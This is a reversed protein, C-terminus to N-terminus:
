PPSTGCQVTTSNVLIIIIIIKFLKKSHPGLYVWLKYSRYNNNISGVPHFTVSSLVIRLYWLYLFVFYGTGEVCLNVSSESDGVTNNSGGGGM